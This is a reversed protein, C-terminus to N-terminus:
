EYFRKQIINDLTLSKLTKVIKKASKGEGYPNKINLIEKKFSKDHLAKYIAKKIEDKNYGVDIVNSARERDRQRSGINVAPIGFTSSEHIGSSSNGVIAWINRYINVFEDTSLSPYWNM